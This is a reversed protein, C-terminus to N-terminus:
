MFDTSVDMMFEYFLDQLDVVSGDIPVRALFNDVHRDTCALDAIQNRVFSPRILARSDQWDKGNVSFIAHPGLATLVTKLRLGGIIWVDFHSSLLAKVNEPEITTINWSGFSQSWYTSNYRFHEHWAELLTGAKLHKATHIIWDSGMIPDIHPYVAAPQCGHIRM